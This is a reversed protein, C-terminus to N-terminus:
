LISAVSTFLSGSFSLIILIIPLLQIMSAFIRNQPNQAQENDQERHRHQPRRQGARRHEFAQGFVGGGSFFARFIDEADM